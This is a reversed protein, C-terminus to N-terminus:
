GIIVKGNYMEEKLRDFTIEQLGARKEDLREIRLREELNFEREEDSESYVEEDEENKIKNNALLKDKERIEDRIIDESPYDDILKLSIDNIKMKSKIYSTMKIDKNNEIKNVLKHTNNLVKGLIDGKINKFKKTVFKKGNFIKVLERSLDTM